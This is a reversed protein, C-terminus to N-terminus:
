TRNRSDKIQNLRLEASEISEDHNLCLIKFDDTKPISNFEDTLIFDLLTEGFLNMLDNAQNEYETEFDYIAAAEEDTLVYTTAFCQYEWDGTSYKLEYLEEESQYHEAFEGTQYSQLIKEFSSETNLCLNIEAYDANCDFAFAYFILTPNEELFETVSKQTFSLLENKIKEVDLQKSV